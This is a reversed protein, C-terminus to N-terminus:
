CVGSSHLAPKHKVINMNVTQFMAIWVSVDKGKGFVENQYLFLDFLICTYIHQVM